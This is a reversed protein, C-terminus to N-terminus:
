LFLLEVFDGAESPDVKALSPEHWLDPSHALDHALLDIHKQLWLPPPAM